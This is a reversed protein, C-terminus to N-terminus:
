DWSDGEEIKTITGDVSCKMTDALMPFAAFLQILDDGINEIILETDPEFPGALVLKDQLAGNGAPMRQAPPRPRSPWLLEKLAYIAALGRTKDDASKRRILATWRSPISRGAYESRLQDEYKSLHILYSNLEEFIMPAHRRASRRDVNPFVMLPGEDYGAELATAIAYHDDTPEHTSWQVTIKPLAQNM